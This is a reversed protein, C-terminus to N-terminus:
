FKSVLCNAFFIGFTKLETIDCNKPAFPGKFFSTTCFFYHKCSRARKTTLFIERNSKNLGSPQLTKYHM